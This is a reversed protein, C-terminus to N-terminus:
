LAYIIIILVFIYLVINNCSVFCSRFYIIEYSFTLRKQLNLARVVLEFLIQKPPGDVYRNKSRYSLSCQKSKPQFHFGYTLVM